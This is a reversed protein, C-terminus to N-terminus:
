CCIDDRFTSLVEGDITGTTLFRYIYVSRKQGDSHFFFYHRAYYRSSIVLRHIRAM